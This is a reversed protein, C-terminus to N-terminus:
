NSAWPMRDSATKVLAKALAGVDDYNPPDVKSVEYPVSLKAYTNGEGVLALLLKFAPHDVPM